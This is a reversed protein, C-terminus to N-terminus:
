LGATVATIQAACSAQVAACYLRSRCNPRLRGGACCETRDKRDAPKGLWSLKGEWGGVAQSSYAKCAENMKRQPRASTSARRGVMMYSPHPAGTGVAGVAGNLLTCRQM